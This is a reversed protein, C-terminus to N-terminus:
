NNDVCYMHFMIKIIVQCYHGPPCHYQTPRSSSQGAPCYYKEACVGSPWALGSRNCHKGAICKLCESKNVGKERPLYTGPDCPSPSISGTPCFYGQPCIKQIKVAQPCYYGPDCPGRPSSMRSNPCYMGADCPTMRSSNLPCYHGPQCENPRSDNNGGPCFWGTSSLPM